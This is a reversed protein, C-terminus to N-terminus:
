PSFGRLPPVSLCGRCTATSTSTIRWMRSTSQRETSRSTRSFSMTFATAQRGLGQDREPVEADGGPQHEPLRLQHQERAAPQRRVNRGCPYVTNKLELLPTLVNGEVRINRYTQNSYGANPDSNDVYVQFVSALLPPGGVDSLYTKVDIDDVLASYGKKAEFGYYGGTSCRTKRPAPSVPRSPSTTTKSAPPARRSRTTATSSSATISTASGRSVM